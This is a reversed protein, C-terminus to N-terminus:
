LFAMRIGHIEQRLTDIAKDAAEKFKEVDLSFTESLGDVSVTSSQPLYKDEIIRIVAMKKILDILDPYDANADKMGATYRVRIMHPVVRGGGYVQLIWANLPLTGDGIPVINIVGFHNDIHIWKVPFSYLSADTSPYLFQISEVSIVPRRRTELFGWRNGRFFEPDWDYAPEEVYRTSNANFADIVSQPTGEPLVEVPEFFTRLRREADAEAALVKKYIYSDTLTESPFYSQAVTVLREAKMEAVIDAQAAFLTM